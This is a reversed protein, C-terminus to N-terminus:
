GKRRWRRVIGGGMVGMALLAWSSPEPVVEPAISIGVDDVANLDDNGSIDSDKTRFWLFSGAVWPSGSTFTVTETVTTNNGSANGDIFHTSGGGTNSLNPSAVSGLVTWGASTLQNGTSVLNAKYDIELPDSTTNRASWQEYTLTLSVDGIYNQGSNNQLQLGIYATGITSANLWGLARDTVPNVGAVGVNFASGGSNNGTSTLVSTPVGLVTSNLYWGTLTSNDTWTVTGTGLSDFNQSYSLGTGDYSVQARAIEAVSIGVVCVLVPQIANKLKM